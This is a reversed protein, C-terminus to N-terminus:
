EDRWRAHAANKNGNVNCYGPCTSGCESCRPEDNVSVLRELKQRAQAVHDRREVSPPPPRDNLLRDRLAKDHLVDIARELVHRVSYKPDLRKLTRLKEMSAVAVRTSIHESPVADM